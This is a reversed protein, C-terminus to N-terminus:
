RVLGAPAVSPTQAFGWYAFLREAKIGKWRVLLEAASEYHRQM